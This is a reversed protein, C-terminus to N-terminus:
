NGSFGLPAAANFSRNTRSRRPREILPMSLVSSLHCDNTAEFQANNFLAHSIADSCSSIGRTSTRGDFRNISSRRHSLRSKTSSLMANSSSNRTVSGFTGVFENPFDMKVRCGNRRLSRASFRGKSELLTENGRGCIKFLM